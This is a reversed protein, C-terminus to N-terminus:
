PSTTVLVYNGSKNQDVFTFKRNLHGYVWVEQFGAEPDLSRETSTPPGYLVYIRGRDTRFGDPLRLTGFNRSAHDVRRYYETEVENFATGPTKDRKRWFEELNKRRSEMSGRRLSDLQDETTVYRLAELAYDIDRLSFPMTPWVMRFKLTLEKRETGKALILTLTYSRLLLKEFPFPLIAMAGNGIRVVDYSPPGGEVAPRLAVGSFARTTLTRPAPLYERDEDAPPREALTFTASVASDGGPGPSWVVALASPTGFLIEGGFNTPAVTAPLSSDAPPAIFMASATALGPRLTGAMTVTRNKETVNRRSELDDITIQVKYTGPRLVFSFIGQQWDHGMPKRDANLEGVDVRDLARGATVGTSDVMEVLVEGRRIFEHPVSADFNKVPVFFERDIRYHVDIRGKGSDGEAPLQVTEYYLIQPGEEGPGFRPQAHVVVGGLIAACGAGILLRRM